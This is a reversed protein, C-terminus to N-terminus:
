AKAKIIKKKFLTCVMDSIIHLTDALLFGSIVILLEEIHYRGIAVILTGINAISKLFVMQINPIDYPSNWVILIAQYFFYLCMGILIFYITRTITGILVLHSVGRHSCAKHYPWWLWKFWGWAMQSKSNPLDLDPSLFLSAISTAVFCLVAFKIKLFSILVLYVLFALSVSLNITTHQNGNCM